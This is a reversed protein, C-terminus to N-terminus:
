EPQWVLERLQPLLGPSAALLCPPDGPLEEVAGGAETVLLTGAAWDWPHLGREYYADVRGAALWALDLAAAGARRIDRVQPLLRAVVEAQRERRREEYSFGTAVMARELAHRGSVRLPAGNLRAGEGRAAAFVEERLPDYVVGVALGREDELAVSVAWAPFGYLFNVTGDLPDVIWRRGSSGESHAGEEGLLGDGSRETRLLEVIAREAERDADSVMDTDSSKSDLGEPPRGFYGLLVEGAARALREALELDQSM